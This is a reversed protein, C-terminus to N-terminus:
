HMSTRFPRNSNKLHKDIINDYTIKLEEPLGNNSIPLLGGGHTIHLFKFFPLCKFYGCNIFEDSFLKFINFKQCYLQTGFDEINRYNKHKFTSMIDLLVSLKWISPNVNYIYSNPNYQKILSFREDFIEFEIPVSDSNSSSDFYQLDIRDINNTRSYRYLYNIIEDNKNILIDIDHILLIFDDKLSDLFLLRNAYPLTDDYFIVNRYKDYIESLNSDNKNILLTKNEISSVYDTQIKLIELYDTHSYIVYNIM